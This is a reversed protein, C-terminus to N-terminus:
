QQLHMYNTLTVLLLARSAMAHEIKRERKVRV